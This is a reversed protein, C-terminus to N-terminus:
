ISLRRLQSLNWRLVAPDAADVFLLRQLRERTLPQENLDLLALLLWPKHGRVNVPEAGRHAGPSGLLRIETNM